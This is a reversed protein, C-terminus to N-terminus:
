AFPDELQKPQFSLLDNTHNAKEKEQQQSAGRAGPNPRAPVPSVLVRM